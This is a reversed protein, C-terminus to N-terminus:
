NKVEARGLCHRSLCNRKSHPAKVCATCLVNLKITAAASGYVASCRLVRGHPDQVALNGGYEDRDPQNPVASLVLPLTTFLTEAGHAPPTLRAHGLHPRQAGARVLQAALECGAPLDPAGVLAQPALQLYM